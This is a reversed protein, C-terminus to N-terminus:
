EFEVEVFECSTIPTKQMLIELKSWEPDQRLKNPFIYVFDSNYIVTFLAFEVLFRQVESLKDLDDSIQDYNFASFGYNAIFEKIHNQITMQSTSFTNKIVSCFDVLKDKLEKRIAKIKENLEGGQLNANQSIQSKSLKLYDLERRTSVVQEPTLKVEPHALVVEINRLEVQKSGRESVVQDYTREGLVTKIQEELYQLSKVNSRLEAKKNFFEDSDRMGVMQLLEIKLNKNRQIEALISEPTMATEDSQLIHSTTQNRSSILLIGALFAGCAWFVYSFYDPAEILRFVMGFLISAVFVLTAFVIKGVDISTKHTNHDSKKIEQFKNELLAKELTELNQNIQVLDSHVKNLDFQNLYNLSQYQALYSNFQSQIDKVSNLQKELSDIEKILNAKKKEAEEYEQSKQMKDELNRIKSEADENPQPSSTNGEKQSLYKAVLDNYEKDTISLILAIEEDTYIESEKLFNKNTHYFYNKLIVQDNTFNQAYLLLVSEKRAKIKLNSNM